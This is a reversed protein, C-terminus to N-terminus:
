ELEMGKDKGKENNIAIEMKDLVYEIGQNKETGFLELYKNPNDSMIAQDREAKVSDSIISVQNGDISISASKDSDTRTESEFPLPSYGKNIDITFHAEEASFTMNIKSVMDNADLSEIKEVIANINEAQTESGYKEAYQKLDSISNVEVEGYKSLGHEAFELVGDPNIGLKTEESNLIPNNGSVTWEGSQNVIAQFEDGYESNAKITIYSNEIDDANNLKYESVQIGLDDEIYGVVQSSMEVMGKSDHAEYDYIDVARLDIGSEQDNMSMDQKMSLHASYEQVVESIVMNELDKAIEPNSIDLNSIDGGNSKVLDSINEWNEQVFIISQDQDKGALHEQVLDNVNENIGKEAMEIFKDVGGLKNIVNEALEQNSVYNDLIEAKIENNSKVVNQELQLKSYDIAYIFDEVAKDISQNGNDAIPLNNKGFHSVQWKGDEKASKTLAVMGTSTEAFLGDVKNENFDKILIQELKTVEDALSSAFDMLEAGKINENSVKSHNFKIQEFVSLREKDENIYDKFQVEIGKNGNYNDLIIGNDNNNKGSNDNEYKYGYDMLEIANHKTASRSIAEPMSEISDTYVFANHRARSIGVYFTEQSTTQSKTNLDVIVNDYTLGQSAHVTMAYAYDLHHKKSLDIELLKNDSDKAIAIGTDKSVSEITLLDGTKFDDYSKTVRVKDGASLEIKSEEFIGAQLGSPSVFLKTGDSKELEVKNQKVNRGTIKYTEGSEIKRRKDSKGFIVYDGAYFSTAYDSEAKSTNRQSLKTYEIGKGLTGIQERILSNINQRDDNTGSVILTKEKDEDSLSLYKEVLVKHRDDKNQIESLNELNDLADDFNGQVSSVVAKRLVQNKQRQIDAMKTTEMGNKQLLEFPTGAEVAKTQATDGLLVLQCGIKERIELIDKMQKSNIVGSEDIVIVSNENLNDQIEKSVLFKAVTNAELGDNVLNKVQASYPAFLVMEKGKDEILEKTRSIMFSKGTGAYGQIGLVANDSSLVMLACAKQEDNLTTKDLKEKAEEKNYTAIYTGQSDTLRQIIEKDEDIARQTTYINETVKYGNDELIKNFDKEDIDEYIGLIDRVSYESYLVGKNEYRAETKVIQKDEVMESLINDIDDYDIIGLGKSMIIEKMDKERIVHDKDTLHKVVFEKLNESNNFFLEEDGEGTELKNIKEKWQEKLSLDVQDLDLIDDLTEEIRGTTDSPVSNGSGRLGILENARSQQLQVEQDIPLLVDSPKSWTAM